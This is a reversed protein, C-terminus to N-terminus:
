CKSELWSDFEDEVDDPAYDFGGYKREVYTELARERRADAVRTRRQNDAVAHCGKCLLQVVDETEAGLFDYDLHHLEVQSRSFTKKCAACVPNGTLDLSKEIVKSRLDQWAESALVEKYYESHRIM